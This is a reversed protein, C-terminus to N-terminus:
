HDILLRNGTGFYRNIQTQKPQESQSLIGALSHNSGVGDYIVKDHITKLNGLHNPPPPSSILLSPLDPWPFDIQSTFM